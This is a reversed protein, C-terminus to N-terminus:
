DEEGSEEADGGDSEVPQGIKASTRQQEYVEDTGMGSGELVRNREIAELISDMAELDTKEKESLYNYGLTEVITQDSILNRLKLMSTIKEDQMQPLNKPIDVEVDRFDFTTGKKLNIRNFILEWRRLYAKKLLSVVDATAMNLVYFKRDIASANLDTSNFALDSTNPIGALQFMLDIYVKLITQIGNADVPKSLWAVDGDEGVYITRTTIWAMDEMQRAPNLIVNGQSDVTTMPNEPTYNTIKLKVDSDNYQYTNRTNQILQEYAQIVDECVEFVAYDTEVAFAPVDGWNHAIQEELAVSNGSRVYRRIGNMDTIEVKTVINGNIDEEDWTRVLGTLNAPIEYDWTAVTQLPDYKAYVIENDENEYVIEYCSTLEFVDHILDYNEQSDDNYKTIYEVLIEMGRVYEDDRPAKDLLNQLIKNREDDRSRDISYTPTGATYGTALDTIFKEFPIVTEEPDDSYLVKSATAGRSYKEHLDRRKKLIPEIKQLLSIIENEGFEEINAIQLM